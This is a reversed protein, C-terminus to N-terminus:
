MDFQNKYEDYERQQKKTRKKDAVALSEKDSKYLEPFIGCTKCPSLLNNENGCNPCRWSNNKFLPVREKTMREFKSTRYLRRLFYAGFTLALVCILIIILMVRNGDKEGGNEFVIYYFLLYAGFIPLIFIGYEWIASLIVGVPTGSRSSKCYKIFRKKDSIHKIEQAKKAM